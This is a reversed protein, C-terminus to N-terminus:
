KLFWPNKKLFVLSYFANLKKYTFKPDIKQIQSLYLKEFKKKLKLDNKNKIKWSDKMLKIMEFVIDKIQGTNLEELKVKKIRFEKSHASKGVGYNFIEKLSLKKNKFNKHIKLCLITKKSTVKLSTIPAMNLDLLPKRFTTAVEDLGNNSCIWFYCKHAFFFDM